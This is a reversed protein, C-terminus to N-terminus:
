TPRRSRPEARLLLPSGWRRTLGLRAALGELPRSVAPRRLLRHLALPLLLERREAAPEWGFRALATAVEGRAFRRYPRTDKEVVVKWRFLTGAFRHVGSRPPFDVVVASRAVRCLEAMLAEWAPVHTLLRLAMVVEFSRDAFPLADLACREFAFGGPPLLRDLRRRCSEASGTVTVHHGDAVLPVAAQAHGGGVDLVTVAAFPALLERLAATQVALLWQGVPGSFRRAYADSATEVDPAAADGAPGGAADPTSHARV